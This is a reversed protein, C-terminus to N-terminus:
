RDKGLAAGILAPQYRATSLINFSWACEYTCHCNTDRIWDRTEAAKSDQWLRLFDYDYNRLNGLPKDLIECPRVTGNAEIIGFLSGARCPSIYHPEMYTDKVINWIMLNKKNMLRGQLTNRDWGEIRGSQMDHTIKDIMREYTGIIAKKHELPIRYVGEDRVVGLTICHVGYDEILSEYLIPVVKYNEHSITIGVNSRAHPAFRRVLHYSQITNDFLGKIKRIRDHDEPLGDISFSFLVLRDPFEVSLKELFNEIRNPLSGNSTIFISRVNTNRFYCCAIDLLERRAFPEGGTLNINRLSPGLTRTFRDIEDVTLENRFTKPDDFDIFCFSCRANCRNTVFHILSVPYRRTVHVNAVLSLGQSVNNILTHVGV